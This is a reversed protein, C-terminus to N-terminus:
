NNNSNNILKTKGTKLVLCSEKIGGFPNQSMSYGMVSIITKM